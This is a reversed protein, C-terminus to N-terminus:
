IKTTKESFIFELFAIPIDMKGGKLVFVEVCIVCNSITKIDM